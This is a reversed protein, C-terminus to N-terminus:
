HMDWTTRLSLSYNTLSCDLKVSWLCSYSDRYRLIAFFLLGGVRGRCLGEITNPAAFDGKHINKAKWIGVIMSLGVLEVSYQCSGPAAGLEVSKCIRLNQM